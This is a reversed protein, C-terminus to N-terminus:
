AKANQMLVSKPLSFYIFISFLIYLFNPYFTPTTTLSYVLLITFTGTLLYKDDLKLYKRRFWINLLILGYIFSGLVGTLYFIRLYDNHIGISINFFPNNRSLPYGLFWTVVSSGKFNEWAYEWRAMRGHFLQSEDREGHIVELEKEILPNIRDNYFKGGYITISIWFIIVLIISILSFKRAISAIFILMLLSFVAFSVTHSIGIFGVVIIFGFAIVV